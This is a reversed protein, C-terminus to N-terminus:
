GVKLILVEGDRVTKFPINEKKYYEVSEDVKGSEFHDSKYHPVFVFDILGLGEWIIEPDYGRAQANPDDVLDIGKLTPSLVCPGASYGGYVLDPDSKHRWLWQDLGSQKFAKRLIFTNGGRVWILGFEQLKKDLEEAKGFYERLDINEVEFGLEELERVNEDFKEKKIEENNFDDMANFILATKKNKVMDVLERGKDGIHYSSLYLKM